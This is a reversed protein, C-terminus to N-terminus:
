CNQVCIIGIDPSAQEKTPLIGIKYQMNDDYPIDFQTTRTIPVHPELHENFLDEQSFDGYVAQYKNDDRYLIYFQGGYMRTTKTDVNEATIQIQFFIGEPKTDKNGNHEGIHEVTYMVPGVQVLEGANVRIFNPQYQWYMYTAFIM